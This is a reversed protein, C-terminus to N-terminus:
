HTVPKTQGGSSELRQPAAILAPLGGGRVPRITVTFRGSRFEMEAWDDKNLHRLDDPLAQNSM